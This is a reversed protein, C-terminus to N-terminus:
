PLGRLVRRAVPSRWLRWWSPTGPQGTALGTLTRAGSHLHSLRATIQMQPVVHTSTRQMVTTLADRRQPSMAALTRRLWPLSPFGARMEGDVFHLADAAHGILDSSISSPRWTLSVLDVARASMTGMAEGATLTHHVAPAAALARAAVHGGDEAAVSGFNTISEVTHALAHPRLSLADGVTSSIDLASRGDGGIYRLVPMREVHGLVRPVASFRELHAALGLTSVLPRVWLTDAVLAFLVTGVCARQSGDIGTLVGVLFSMVAFTTGILAGGIVGLLPLGAVRAVRAGLLTAGVIWGLPVLATVGLVVALAAVAIWTLIAHLRRGDFHRGLLDGLLLLPAGIRFPLWELVAHALSFVGGVLQEITGVVGAILSGALRALTHLVSHDADRPHDAAWALHEATQGPDALAIRGTGVSTDDVGGPWRAADLRCAHFSGAQALLRSSAVEGLDGSLAPRPVITVAGGDIIAVDLPSLFMGIRDVGGADRYLAYDAPAPGAPRPASVDLLHCGRLLDDPASLGRIDVGADRWAGLVLARDPSPGYLGHHGVQRSVLSAALLRPQSTAQANTAALVLATGAALVGGGLLLATRKM